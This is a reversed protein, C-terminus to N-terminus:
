LGHVETLQRIPAGGSSRPHSTLCPHISTAALAVTPLFLFPTAHTSAACRPCDSMALM